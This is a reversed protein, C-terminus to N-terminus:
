LLDVGKGLFQKGSPSPQTTTETVAKKKKLGLAIKFYM